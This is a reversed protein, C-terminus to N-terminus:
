GDEGVLAKPGGTTFTTQGRWAKGDLEAAFEAKYDTLPELRDKAMLCLTKLNDAFYAAPKEPSSVYCPVEKWEAGKKAYLKGEAKTIKTSGFFTATVPFGAVPWGRADKKEPMGIPNPSELGYNRIVGKAGAEPYLVVAPTITRRTIAPVSLLAIKGTGTVAFADASLAYGIGVQKADPNLLPIRHFFSSMWGHVCHEPTSFAIDSSMGAFAGAESYGPLGRKAEHPTPMGWFTWSAPGEGRNLDMYVAHNRCARSLRGDLTVEPLKLRRRYENMAAVGREAMGKTRAEMDELGKGGHKKHFALLRDLRTQAGDRVDKPADAQKALDRFRIAHDAVMDLAEAPPGEGEKVKPLMEALEKRGPAWGLALEMLPRWATVDGKKEEMRARWLVLRYFGADLAALYKGDAAVAFSDASGLLLGTRYRFANNLSNGLTPTYKLAPADWAAAKGTRFAITKTFPKGDIEAKFEAKYDAEAALPEKAIACVTGLNCVWTERLMPREPSSVWAPVEEWGDGAKRRLVASAKEIRDSGWFTISVPYGAEARGQRDRKADAPAWSPRQDLMRTPVDRAGDEPVAVVARTEAVVNKVNAYRAVVLPGRYGEGAPASFALGIRIEAVDPRLLACRGPPTAMWGDVADEANGFAVLSSAAMMNANFSFGPRGPAQGDVPLDGALRGGERNLDLYMAHQRALMDSHGKVPLPELGAKKRYVNIRELAASGEAKQAADRKGLDAGFRAALRTMAGQREAFLKREEATTMRHATGTATGYRFHYEALLARVAASAGDKGKEEALDKVIQALGADRPFARAAERVVEPSTTKKGARREERVLAALSAAFRQDLADLLQLLPDKKTEPAKAAPPAEKKAPKDPRDAAPALSLAAAALAVSLALALPTKNLIMSQLVQHALNAVPASAAAALPTGAALLTVAQRTADFLPLSVPALLGSAPHQLGRGRLRDGLLARGRSLRSAATGQPIGLVRAAEAVTKGELACLVIVARFDEPLAALEEDLAVLWEGDAETPAPAPLRDAERERKEHWRQNMGRAKLATRHAVGHLFGGLASRPRVAEARRVLVLFTAQFADDADPTCGLVRRCVGLVMPGHRRLIAEAAAPDRSALFRELLDADSGGDDSLTGLWQRLGLIQQGSAAM